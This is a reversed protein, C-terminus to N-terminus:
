SCGANRCAEDWGAFFAEPADSFLGHDRAQRLEHRLHALVEEARPHDNIVIRLILEIARLRGSLYEAGDEPKM